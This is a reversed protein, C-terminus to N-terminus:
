YLKLSRLHSLDAKLTSKTEDALFNGRLDLKKLKPFNKSSGLALAGQDRIENFSLNLKELHPFGASKALSVAGSDLFFNHRLDLSKLRPFVGSAALMRAGKESIQNYRLDLKTVKELGKHSLLAAVGPDGIKKGSLNLSKGNRSLGEKFISGYDIVSEDFYDKNGFFQALGSGPWLVWGVLALILGGFFRKRLM